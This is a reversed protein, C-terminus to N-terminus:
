DGDRSNFGLQINLPQMAGEMARTQAKLEGSIVQLQKYHEADKVANHLPVPISKLQAIVREFRQDIQEAADGAGQLKLLAYPSNDGGTRYLEHLAQLNIVMNELSRESRWSESRRPKTREASKGLPRLIKMDRIVEVPEVMAKLLDTVAETTDDYYGEGDIQQFEQSYAQWEHSIDRGMGAIYSAITTTLECRFPHTQYQALADANYLLREMAPLGKVAVSAARFREDGLSAPDENKLLANLQKAGLNKKDPWFQLSFNRMLIEVPGFQVHQVGQWADMTNNFQQRLSNLGKADPQQCFQAAAQQMAASSDALAQYRPVIHQQVAAKSFAQWQSEAPAAHLQPALLMLSMSLLSLAPKHLTM